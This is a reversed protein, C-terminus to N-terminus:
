KRVTQEVMERVAMSLFLQEEKETLDNRLFQFAREEPENTGKVRPKVLSGVERGGVSVPLLKPTDRRVSALEKKTRRGILSGKADLQGVEQGDIQLTTKSKRTHFVYEHKDTRAYLLDNEGRGLFRRYAYAVVPEHYITTFIGKASTTVGRRLTQKDQGLSFLELEERDLPTLEGVWSDMDLRMKDLTKDLQKSKPAANGLLLSLMTVLGVIVMATLIVLIIM